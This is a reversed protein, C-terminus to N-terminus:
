PHSLRALFGVGRQQIANQAYVNCTGNMMLVVLVEQFSTISQIAKWAVISALTVTVNVSVSLLVNGNPQAAM